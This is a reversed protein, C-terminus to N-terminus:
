QRLGIWAIMRGTRGREKRHSFFLDTRCGTCWESLEICQPLIGAKIMIQRNLEQLNLRYKGPEGAEYLRMSGEAAGDPALKGILPRVKDMVADDVEYCCLGISPGIAALLDGPQTGYAQGMAQVTAAAIELVTGKWGAHALGIAGHVPDFFYLPVCDAFMAALCVGPENTVFGDTDALADDRAVTGKGKDAATVIRIASGHVQEGYVWSDFAVETREAALRRNAIVSAADDAVHLGCNLSAYAGESVGGRRTTFGATLQPYRETWPQLTLVETRERKDLGFPEM